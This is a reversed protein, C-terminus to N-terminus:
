SHREQLELCNNANDFSIELNALSVSCSEGDKKGITVYFETCYRVQVASRGRVPGSVLVARGTNMLTHTIWIDKWDLITHVKRQSESVKLAPSTKGMSALAEFEAHTKWDRLKREPFQSIDNDVLKGCNQCLWIGNDIDRREEPSLSPNYRPGGPAASTIHAAVGVNLAKRPDDQPGSTPTRCTPNSCVNGTRLALIQKVQESFDDRM